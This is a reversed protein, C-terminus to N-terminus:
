RRGEMLDYLADRDDLDVGRRLRGEVTVWRLERPEADTAREAALLRRLAEDILDTMTMGSDVARRKVARVLEDDLNLTTRMCLLM